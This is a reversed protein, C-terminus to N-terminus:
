RFLKLIYPTFILIGVIAAGVASLLVMGAAVDKAIKAKQKHETTILDVMEEIATNIMEAAMVFLILFSIIVTELYNIRLILALSIVIIGVILHVKLNLNDRFAYYIGEVAYKFSFALRKHM